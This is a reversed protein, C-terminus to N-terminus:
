VCIGLNVSISVFRCPDMVIYFCKCCLNMYFLIIYVSLCLYPCICMLMVGINGHESAISFLSICSIDRILYLYCYSPLLCHDLGHM